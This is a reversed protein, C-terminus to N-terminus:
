FMSLVVNSFTATTKGTADGGIVSLVLTIPQNILGNVFACVTAGNLGDKELVEYSTQVFGATLTPALVISFMHLYTEIFISWRLRIHVGLYLTYM